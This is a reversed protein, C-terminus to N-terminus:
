KTQPHLKIEAYTGTTIFRGFADTQFIIDRSIVQKTEPNMSEIEILLQDGEQSPKIMVVEPKSTELYESSHMAEYRTKFEKLLTRLNKDSVRPIALYAESAPTAKDTSSKLSPKSALLQEISSFSREGSIYPRTYYLAVM